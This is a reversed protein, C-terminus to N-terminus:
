PLPEDLGLVPRAALEFAVNVVARLRSQHRQPQADGRQARSHRGCVGFEGVPKVFEAAVQFLGDTFEARERPSQVRRHQFLRSHGTRETGVHALQAQRDLDDLM